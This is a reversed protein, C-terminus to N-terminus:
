LVDCRIFLGASKFDNRLHERFHAVSWGARERFSVTEAEMREAWLLRLTVARTGMGRSHYETILEDLVQYDSNEKVGIEWKLDHRRGWLPDESSLDSNASVRQLWSILKRRDRVGFCLPTTIARMMALAAQPEQRLQRYAQALLAWAEAYEPLHSVAKELHHVALEPMSATLANRAAAQLLWPSDPDFRLKVEGFLETASSESEVAGDVMANVAEVDIGLLEATEYYESSGDDDLAALQTRVFSKLSSAVPWFEWSDHAITCVLPEGMELGIPWYFGYTDGNGIALFVDGNWTALRRILRREGTVTSGALAGTGDASCLFGLDLGDALAEAVDKPVRM